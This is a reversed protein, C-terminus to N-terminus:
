QRGLHSRWVMEEFFDAFPFRVKKMWKRVLHRGEKSNWQEELYDHCRPGEGPRSHHCFACELPLYGTNHIECAGNNLFTCGNLAYEQLSFNSECGRFAPSM